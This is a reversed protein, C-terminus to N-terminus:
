NHSMRRGLRADARSGAPRRPRSSRSPPHSTPPSGRRPIAQLMQVFEFAEQHPSAMVGETETLGTRGRTSPSATSASRARWRGRSASSAARRRSTTRSTRRARPCSTRPSTSSGATAERPKHRLPVRPSDTDSTAAAHHPAVRHLRHRGVRHLPRHRRQERCTSSRLRRRDRRGYAQRRGGQLHRDRSGDRGRTSSGGKIDAVVVTARMRWSTQSRRASARDAAPSSRWGATWSAWAKDEKSSTSIPLSSTRGPRRPRPLLLRRRRARRRRGERAPDLARGGAPRHPGPSSGARTGPRTYVVDRVFLM